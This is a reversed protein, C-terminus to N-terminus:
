IKENNKIIIINKLRNIFVYVNKYFIHRDSNIVLEEDKFIFDFFKIDDFKLQSLTDNKNENFDDNNSLNLKNFSKFFDILCKAVTKSSCNM